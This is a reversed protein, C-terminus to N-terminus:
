GDTKGERESSKTLEHEMCLRHPSLGCALWIASALNKKLEGEDLARWILLSEALTLKVEIDPAFLQGVNPVGPTEASDANPDVAVGANNPKQSTM